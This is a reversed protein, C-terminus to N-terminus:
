QKQIESPIQAAKDRTHESILLLFFLSLDIWRQHQNRMIHQSYRKGEDSGCLLHKMIIKLHAHLSFFKSSLHMAIFVYIQLSQSCRIQTSLRTTPPSKWCTYAMTAAPPGLAGSPQLGAKNGM